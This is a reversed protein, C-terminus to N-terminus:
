STATPQCAANADTPASHVVQRTTLGGTEPPPARRDPYQVIEYPRGGAREEFRDKYRMVDDHLYNGLKNGKVDVRNVILRKDAYGIKDGPAGVIRFLFTQEPKPPFDFVIFDGRQLPATAASSGLRVGFASSHGYGWKQAILSSGRPVTPLMSVSPASFLEYLFIRVLLAFVAFASLTVLLGYWRTSWPRAASRVPAMSAAIRYAWIAVGIVVLYLLPGAAQAGAGGLVCSGIALALAVVLVLM